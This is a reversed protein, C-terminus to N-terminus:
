RGTRTTTASSNCSWILGLPCLPLSLPSQAAETAGPWDARRGEGSDGQVDRRGADRALVCGLLGFEGVSGGSSHPDSWGCGVARSAEELGRGTLPVGAGGPCLCFSLLVSALTVLGAPFSIVDVGSGPQSFCGPWPRTQNPERGLHAGLVCCPLIDKRVWRHGRVHPCCAPWPWPVGGGPSPVQTLLSPHAPGRCLPRQVRRGSCRLKRARGGVGARDAAGM